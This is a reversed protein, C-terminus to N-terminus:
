RITVIDALTNIIQSVGGVIRGILFDRAYALCEPIGDRIRILGNVGKDGNTAFSLYISNVNVSLANHPIYL